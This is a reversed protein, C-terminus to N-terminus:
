PSLEDSSSMGAYCVRNIINGNDGGYIEELLLGGIKATKYKSM